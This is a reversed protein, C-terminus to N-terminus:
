AKQAERLVYIWKMSAHEVTWLLKVTTCILASHDLCSPLVTGSVASIQLTIVMFSPFFTTPNVFHEKKKGVSPLFYYLSFLSAVVTHSLLSSSSLILSPAFIFNCYQYPHHLNAAHPYM